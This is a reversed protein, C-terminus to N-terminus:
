KNSKWIVKDGVKIDDLKEVPVPAISEFDGLKDFQIEAIFKDGRVILLKASPKLNYKVDVVKKGVQQKYVSKSGLNVIVYGYEPSIKTVEGVLLKLVDESGDAMVSVESSIGLMDHCKKVEAKMKAVEANSRRVQAEARAAKAEANRKAEEANRKAEEANRKAKEANSAKTEANKARKNAAAVKADRDEEAKNKAKEAAVKADKLSKVNAVVADAKVKSTAVKKFEAANGPKGTAISDIKCLADAQYDRQQTVKLALGKVKSVATDINSQEANATLEDPNVQAAVATGSGADMTKAVDQLATAVNKSNAVMAERKSFLMVSLATSVLALVLVVSSLVVNLVKSNKM